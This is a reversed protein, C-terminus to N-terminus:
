EAIQNSTTNRLNRGRGKGRGRGMGQGAFDPRNTGDFDTDTIRAEMDAYRTDAEEQTLRGDAVAADLNEKADSLLTQKLEDMVGANQALEGLTKGDRMETLVDAVDQETINAFVEVPREHLRGVRHGRMGGGEFGCNQTAATCVGTGGAPCETSNLYAAGASLSLAAVLLGTAALTTLKRNLKM